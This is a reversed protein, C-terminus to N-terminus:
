FKVAAIASEGDTERYRGDRWGRTDRSMAGNRSGERGCLKFRCDRGGGFSLDAIRVWLKFRCDRGCGSSLYIQM